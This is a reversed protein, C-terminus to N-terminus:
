FAVVIGGVNAYVTSLGNTQVLIVNKIAKCKELIDNKISEARELCNCHSIVLEMSNTAAESTYNRVHEVIRSMAKKTGRVKELMKIEGDDACMVPRVSLVSAVIGVAKSVRGKKVLNDLSELVFLTRMSDIFSTTKAIVEDFSYEKEILEKIFLVIRLEGASASKSDFVHIEKNANEELTMDRAIRAANFSGSLRSSITVIFSKDHKKMLDAFDNPSPCATNPSELSKKMSAILKDRDLHEDDVFNKDGDFTIKLPAIDIEERIKPTLDCGSDAIINFKMM